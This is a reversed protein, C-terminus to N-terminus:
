NPFSIEGAVAEASSNKGRRPTSKKKEQPENVEQAKESKRRKSGTEESRANKAKKPKKTLTEQQVVEEKITSESRSRAM